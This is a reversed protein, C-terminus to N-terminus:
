NLAIWSTGNSVYVTNSVRILANPNGSPSFVGTNAVSPIVPLGNSNVVTLSGSVGTRSVLQSEIILDNTIRATGSVDLNYTPNYTNVGLYNNVSDFRLYNDYVIKGSESYLALAGGSYPYSSDSQSVYFNSLNPIDGTALLRFTPYDPACGSICTGSAPGAFITAAQQKKLLLRQDVLGSLAFIANTGTTNDLQNRLFPELQRGGSYSGVGAFVIGSGGDIFGSARVVSHSIDGGIDVAYSPSVNFIGLSSTDKNWILTDSYDLIQEGGWFALGSSKPQKFSGIGSATFVSFKGPYTVYVEKVGSGFNVKNNSNTSKIPFRTISDDSGDLIFQGSGVEYNTGDTIAYFVADNYSYFSKFTSFGRAAGELKFNNVGSSHSLEKIRDSLVVIDKSM